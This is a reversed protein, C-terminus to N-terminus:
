AKHSTTFTIAIVKCGEQRLKNLYETIATDVMMRMSLPQTEMAFKLRAYIFKSIVTLTTEDLKAKM